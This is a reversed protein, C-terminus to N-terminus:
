GARAAQLRVRNEQGRKHKAVMSARWTDYSRNKLNRRTHVIQEYHSDFDREFADTTSVLDHILGSLADLLAYKFRASLANEAKIAGLMAGVIDTATSNLPREWQGHALTNRMEIVPRLDGEILDLISGYRMWATAKLTEGSLRAKKVDYRKRYGIELAALWRELQSHRELIIKRDDDDFGSPEYLLKALRCEAWAGLLLLLIKLHTDASQTEEKSISARLARETHQIGLDVARLNAVHAKYLKEPLLTM